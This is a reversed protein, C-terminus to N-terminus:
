QWTLQNVINTINTTNTRINNTNAAINTANQSISNGQNAITNGMALLSADVQTFKNDTAAKLGDAYAKAETVGEGIEASTDAATKYASLNITGGLPDWYGPAQSGTAVEVYVYNTGPPIYDITGINGYAAIVNYVDGSKPNQIAALASYNEVSGKVKYVTGVLSDAYDKANQEATGAANNITQTLDNIVQQKFTPIDAETLVRSGMITIGDKTISIATVQYEEGNGNVETSYVTINDTIFDGDANFYDALTKLPLGDVEVVVLDSLHVETIGGGGGSGGGSIAGDGFLRTNMFISNGASDSVFCVAGPEVYIPNGTVPDTGISDVGKAQNRTLSAYFKVSTSIAAELNNTPM